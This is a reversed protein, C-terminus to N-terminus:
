LFNTKLIHIVRNYEEGLIVYKIGQELKKNCGSVFLIGADTAPSDSAELNKYFKERSFGVSLAEELVLMPGKKVPIGYIDFSAKIHQELSELAVGLGKGGVHLGEIGGLAHASLLATNREHIITYLEPDNYPTDNM